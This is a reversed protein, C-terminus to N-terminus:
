TDRGLQMPWFYGRYQIKDKDNEQMEKYKKRRQLPQM